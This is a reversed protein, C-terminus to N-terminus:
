EEIIEYEKKKAFFSEVEFMGDCNLDDLNNKVEQMKVFDDTIKEKNGQKVYIEMRMQYAREIYFFSKSEIIFTCDEMAKDYEDIEYYIDARDMYATRLDYKEAIKIIKSYEEIAKLKMERVIEKNKEERTKYWDYIYARRKYISIPQIDFPINAKKEELMSIINFWSNDETIRNYDELAKDCEDLNEYIYARKALGLFYWISSTSSQNIMRTLLDILKRKNEEEGLCETLEICVYKYLSTEPLYREVIESCYIEKISSKIDYFLNDFYRGIQDVDDDPLSLFLHIIDSLTNQYVQKTQYIQERLLYLRARESYNEYNNPNLRIAESYLNIAKDIDQIYKKELEKNVKDSNQLQNIIFRGYEEYGYYSYPKLKIYNEFDSICLEKNNRTIYARLMYSCAYSPAINIAKDIYELAKETNRDKQYYFVGIRVLAQPMDPCLALAKELLKPALKFQYMLLQFKNVYAEARKHAPENENNIIQETQYILSTLEEGFFSSESGFDILLREDFDIEYINM